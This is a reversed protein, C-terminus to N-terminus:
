KTTMHDLPLLRAELEGKSKVWVLVKEVEQAEFNETSMRLFLEVQWNEQSLWITEMKMNLKPCSYKENNLQEGLFDIQKQKDTGWFNM